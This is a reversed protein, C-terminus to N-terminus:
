PVPNAALYAMIAGALATVDPTGLGTAYDWGTTARHLLDGGRVIDHFVTNPASAAAIDYLMPNVFGLQGLENREAVEEFLATIAAWFPASGSTGGVVTWGSEGSEPDTQYVMYGSDLDATAAVDPLQRRGTSWENEVGPGHQWIPRPITPSNGGGTGGTSLWDEWGYENLYSGDQRVELYTGGVATTFESNSPWDVTPRHDRPNFNWCDFAGWDGSAVYMTVGAVAMAQFAREERLRQGDSLYPEADCIGWSNSIIRARGDQLIVDVMEAFELVRPSEVNLIQARPAVSRVVEIDLTVERAGHGPQNGVGGAVLLREVPPSDIGLEQDYRAIDAPFFTDFSVIAVTQGDGSIGAEYLPEIDYAKALEVPGFGRFEGSAGAPTARLARSIAPQADLGAVAEVDLALVAPLSVDGVYDHFTIGSRPDLFDILTIGFLGNITAAPGHLLLATRQDYQELVEFGAQRAWDAIRRIREAPLGFREGFERASLFRHYHPSKPDYLGDLYAKLDAEGPLRLVLSFNVETTGPTPGLERPPGAPGRESSAITSGGLSGPDIYGGTPVFPPVQLGPASTSRPGTEVPRAREVAVLTL